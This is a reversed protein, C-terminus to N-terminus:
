LGPWWHAGGFLEDRIAEKEDEPISGDHRVANYRRMKDLIGKKKGLIKRRFKALSSKDVVGHSALFGYFSLLGAYIEEMIADDVDGMKFIFKSMIREFSVDFFVIDEYLLYTDESLRSVFGFFARLGKFVESYRPVDRRRRLEWQWAELRDRNFEAAFRDLESFDGQEEGKEELRKLKRHDLPRLLYDQLKGGCRRLYQLIRLNGQATEDGPKLSLCQRTAEEAKELRGMVLNVWGVNSIFFPNSPEMEAAKASMELATKKDGLRLAANGLCDYLFAKDPFAKILPELVRRAEEYLANEELFDTWGDLREAEVDDEIRALLEAARAMDRGGGRDDGSSLKRSGLHFLAPYYSPCGKLIRTLRAVQEEPSPPGGLFPVMSDAAMVAYENEATKWPKTDQIRTKSPKDAGGARRGTGRRNPRRKKARKDAM